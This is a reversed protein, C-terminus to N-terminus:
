REPGGDGGPTRSAGLNIRQEQYSPDNIIDTVQRRLAAAEEATFVDDELADHVTEAVANLANDRPVLALPDRGNAVQAPWGVVVGIHLEDLSVAVERSRSGYYITVGVGALEATEVTGSANMQSRVSDDM